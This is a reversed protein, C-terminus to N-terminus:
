LPLQVNDVRRRHWWRCILGSGRPDTYPQTRRGGRIACETRTPCLRSRSKTLGMTWTLRRGTWDAM